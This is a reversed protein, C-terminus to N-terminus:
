TMLRCCPAPPTVNPDQQTKKSEQKKECTDPEVLWSKFATLFVAFPILLTSALVLPRATDPLALTKQAVGDVVRTLLLLAASQPARAWRRWPM